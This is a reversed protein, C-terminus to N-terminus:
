VGIYKYFKVRVLVVKAMAFFNSHSLPFQNFVDEDALLPQTRIDFSVM